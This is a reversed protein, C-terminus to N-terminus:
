SHDTFQTEDEWMSWSHINSRARTEEDFLHRVLQRAFITASNNSKSKIDFLLDYSLTSGGMSSHTSSASTPTGSTDQLDDSVHPLILNQVNQPPPPVQSDTTTYPQL